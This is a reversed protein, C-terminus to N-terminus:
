RATSNTLTTEGRDGGLEHEDVDCDDSSLGDESALARALAADMEMQQSAESM